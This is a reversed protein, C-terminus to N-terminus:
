GMSSSLLLRGPDSKTAIPAAIRMITTAELTNPHLNPGSVAKKSSAMRRGTTRIKTPLARLRRALFADEEPRGGWVTGRVLEGGSGGCFRGTLAGVAVGGRADGGGGAGGGEGTEDGGGDVSDGTAASVVLGIM